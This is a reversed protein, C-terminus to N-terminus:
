VNLNWKFLKASIKTFNSNEWDSPDTLPQIIGFVVNSYQRKILLLYKDNWKLEMM